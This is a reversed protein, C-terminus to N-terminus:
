KGALSGGLKSVFFCAVESLGDCDGAEKLV